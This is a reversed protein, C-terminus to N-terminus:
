LIIERLHWSTQTLVAIAILAVYAAALTVARFRLYQGLTYEANIDSAVLSRIQLNALVLVPTAVAVGLAYEGVQEPTGLKSFILVIIWQCATYIVNGSFLWGFDSRFSRRSASISRETAATM